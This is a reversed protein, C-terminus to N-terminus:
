KDLKQASEGRKYFRRLKRGNPVVAQEAWVCFQKREGGTMDSFILGECGTVNAGVRAFM